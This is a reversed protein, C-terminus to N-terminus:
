LKEIWICSAYCRWNITQRLLHLFRADCPSNESGCSQYGEKVCYLSMWAGDHNFDFYYNINEHVDVVAFLQRKYFVVLKMHAMDPEFPLSNKFCNVILTLYQENDQLVKCNGRHNCGLAVTNKRPGVYWNSLESTGKAYKEIRKIPRQRWSSIELRYCLWNWWDSYMSTHKDWANTSWM